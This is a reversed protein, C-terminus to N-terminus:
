EWGLFRVEPQLSIGSTEEVRQQVIHMLEILDAATASGDNVIFNAHVSSVEADGVRHGKLGAEDILQGASKNGPPNKFFSGGSPMNQPQKNKRRGHLDLCRSKIIAPDSKKLTFVGEVAIMSEAEGWSRYAFDIADRKRTISNGKGDMMTVSAIVDKIEGEWAGANMVIAGGVTGPIGVAFELGSLGKEVSWNVLGSLSHGAEVRVLVSEVSEELIQRSSFNRGFVIVVGRVGKDSVVINSGRGIIHYPVNIKRLGQILQSLEKVGRPFVLAEAAGGVRFTTYSDLSTNWLMEGIWFDAMEDNFVPLWDPMKDQNRETQQVLAQYHRVSNKEVNM